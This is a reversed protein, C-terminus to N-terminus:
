LLSVKLLGAVTAADEREDFRFDRENSEITHVLQQVTTQKGSIRYIGESRLGHADVFAISFHRDNAFALVRHADLM